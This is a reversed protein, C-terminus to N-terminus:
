LIYFMKHYLDQCLAIGLGYSQLVSSVLHDNHLHRHRPRFKLCAPAPAASIDVPEAVSCYFLYSVKLFAINDHFRPIRHDGVFDSGPNAEPDVFSHRGSGPVSFIRGSGSVSSECTDFLLEYSTVTILIIFTWLLKHPV